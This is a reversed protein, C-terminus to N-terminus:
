SGVEVTLGELFASWTARQAAVLASADAGDPPFLYGGVETSRTDPPGSTAIRLMGPVPSELRVLLVPETRDVIGTTGDLAVRDGAAHAGLRARVAAQVETDAGPAAREVTFTTARQGPFHSLYVRLQEFFPVWGTRMDEVFEQEWDAGTGFASSVVRVVCTGGSRAEVLFETALPTVSSADKGTFAAIDEEYAFRRPPDWGTIDAPVDGGPGMHTVLRGGLREESDTPVFWASIGTATALAQWVQEPTGEVEIEFELRLPVDPTTM